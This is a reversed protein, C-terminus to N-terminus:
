PIFKKKAEKATALQLLQHRAVTSPVFCQFVSAPLTGSYVNELMNVNEIGNAGGYQVNRWYDVPELCPHFLEPAKRVMEQILSTKGAGINGEIYVRV